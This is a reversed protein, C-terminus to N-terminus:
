STLAQRRALESVKAYSLNLDNLEDDSMSSMEAHLQRHKAKRASYEVFKKILSM